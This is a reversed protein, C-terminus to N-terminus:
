SRYRNRSDRSAAAKVKWCGLFTDFNLDVPFNYIFKIFQVFQDLEIGNQVWKSQIRM